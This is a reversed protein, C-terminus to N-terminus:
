AMKLRRMCAIFKSRTNGACNKAQRAFEQRFHAPPAKPKAKHWVRHLRGTKPNRVKETRPTCGKGANGMFEITKGRKNTFSIITKKCGAKKHAAKTATKTEAKAM